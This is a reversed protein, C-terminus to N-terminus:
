NSLTILLHPNAAYIATTLHVAPIVPWITTVWLGIMLSRTMVFVSRLDVQSPIIFILQQHNCQLVLRASLTPCRILTFHVVFKLNATPFPPYFNSFFYMSFCSSESLDFLLWYFHMLTDICHGAGWRRVTVGQCEGRVGKMVRWDISPWEFYLRIRM